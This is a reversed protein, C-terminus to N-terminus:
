AEPASFGFLRVANDRTLQRREDAPVGAFMKELFEMSKPWTSESHPFDNGWLMTDLGIRHRLLVGVEDEQFVAFM